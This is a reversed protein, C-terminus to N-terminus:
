SRIHFNKFLASLSQKLADSFFEAGVASKKLEEDRCGKPQFTQLVFCDAGKQKLELAAELIEQESLFAGHVTMRFEYDVGSELLVGVSKQAAEGSQADQTVKPYCRFPAKVDMGVWDCLPLIRRLREPYMGATHLAIQFGMQKVARM